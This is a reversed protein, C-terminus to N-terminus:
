LHTFCSLAISREVHRHEHIDCAAVAPLQQRPHGIIDLRVPRLRQEDLRMGAIQVRDPQTAPLAVTHEYQGLLM